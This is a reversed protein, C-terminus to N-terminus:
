TRLGLSVAAHMLSVEFSQEDRVLGVHYTEYAPLVTAVQELPVLGARLIPVVQSLLITLIGKSQMGTRCTPISSTVTAQWNATCQLATHHVVGHCLTIRVKVPKTVDVITGDAPGCPSQLEVEM